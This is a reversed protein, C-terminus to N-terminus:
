TNYGLADHMEAIILWAEAWDKANINENQNDICENLQDYIADHREFSIEERARNTIYQRTESMINLVQNLLNICITKDKNVRAQIDRPLGMLIVNNPSPELLKIIDLIKDKTNEM